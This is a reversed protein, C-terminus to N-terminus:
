EGGFVNELSSGIAQAVSVPTHCTWQELSENYAADLMDGFHDMAAYNQQTIVVSALDAVDDDSFETFGTGHTGFYGDEFWEDIEWSGGAEVARARLAEGEERTGYFTRGAPDFGLKTRTFMVFGQTRDLAWPMEDPGEAFRIADPFEALIKESLLLAYEPIAEPRGEDLGALIGLLTEEPANRVLSSM